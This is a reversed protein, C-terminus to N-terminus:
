VGPVSATVEGDGVFSLSDPNGGNFLGLNAAGGLGPLAQNSGFGQRNCNGTGIFIGDNANNGIYAFLRINQASASTLGLMTRPIAIEVGKTATLPDPVPETGDVYPGVGVSNTNDIAVELDSEGSLSGTLTQHLGIGAADIVLPADAIRVDVLDVAHVLQEERAALGPFTGVSIVLMYDPTFTTDFATNDYARALTSVSGPCTDGLYDTQLLNSGSGGDTDIWLVLGNNDSINGSLGIYLFSSDADVFMADLENGDPGALTGDDDGFQTNTDQSAVAGIGWTTADINQGDIAQTGAIASGAIAILTSTALFKRM